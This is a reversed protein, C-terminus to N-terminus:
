RERQDSLYNFSLLMLREICMDEIEKKKVENLSVGGM